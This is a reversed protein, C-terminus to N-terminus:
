GDDSEMGLLPGAHSLAAIEEDLILSGMLHHEIARLSSLEPPLQHPEYDYDHYEEIHESLMKDALELSQRAELLAGELVRIHEAVEAYTRKGLIVEYAAENAELEKVREARLEAEEQWYNRNQVALDGRAQLLAIEEETSMPQSHSDGTM